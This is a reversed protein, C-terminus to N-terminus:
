TLRTSRPPSDPPPDPPKGLGPLSGAILAVEVGDESFKPLDENWLMKFSPEVMKSVKPLNIWIQFLELVNTGKTNLLPFMEAHSIGRTIMWQVDGTAFRGGNGLSDTHDILGRRTATITEFGRHPHKLFGPIGEDGHYMNWGDSLPWLRSSRIAFCRPNVGMEPTGAPYKDLHYVAFLFPSDTAFPFGLRATNIICDAM